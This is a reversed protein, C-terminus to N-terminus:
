KASIEVMEFPYIFGGKCDKGINIVYKAHDKRIGTVYVIDGPNFKTGLKNSLTLKDGISYKPKIGHAAVWDLVNKDVVMRKRYSLDELWECFQLDINYYGSSTEIDSAMEYGNDSLYLGNLDEAIDEPDSDSWNNEIVELAMKLYFEKEQKATLLSPRGKQFIENEKFLKNM